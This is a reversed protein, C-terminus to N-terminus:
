CITIRPVSKGKYKVNTSLNVLCMLFFFVFTSEICIEEGLYSECQCNFPQGM